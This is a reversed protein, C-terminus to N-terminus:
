YESFLTELELARQKTFENGAGSTDAYDDAIMRIDMATVSVGHGILERYLPMVDKRWARKFTRDFAPNIPSCAGFKCRHFAPMHRVRKVEDYMSKMDSVITRAGASLTPPPTIAELYVDEIWFTFAGFNFQRLTTAKGFFEVEAVRGTLTVRTRRPLQLCAPPGPLAQSYDGSAAAAAWTRFTQVSRCSVDQFAIQVVDPLDRLKPQDAGAESSTAM